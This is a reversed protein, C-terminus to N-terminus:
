LPNLAAVIAAEAKQSARDGGCPCYVVKNKWDIQFHSLDFGLGAKAQWKVNQAVPGLLDIDYKRESTCLLQASTYGQDVM